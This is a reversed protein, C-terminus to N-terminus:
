VLSWVDMLGILEEITWKHNELGAKIAPTTKLTMHVRCFNYATFFLATMYVHNEFKKSHGNTLRTYRRMGMRMTLNQREVYSTSIHKPDPNGWKPKIEVGTCCGPSYKGEGLDDYTKICVGYASREDVNFCNAVAPPYSRFGDTTIQIRGLVRRAVSRMLDHATETDRNGVEWAIMLKSDADIATWTWADGVGHVGKLHDPKNAEKCHIFAWIEDAQVRKTTLGRVKADHFNLCARGLDKILKLITPKSVGTMRVISNISNGEVLAAVVQVRKATSLQKM